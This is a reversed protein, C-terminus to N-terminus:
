QHYTKSIRQLVSPVEIVLLQEQDKSAWEKLALLGNRYEEFRAETLYKARELPDTLATPVVDPKKALGILLFLALFDNKLENSKKAIDLLRTKPMSPFENKISLALPLLKELEDLIWERVMRVAVAKRSDEPVASLEEM